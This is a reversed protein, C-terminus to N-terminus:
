KRQVLRLTFDGSKRHPQLAASASWKRFRGTGKGSLSRCRSAALVDAIDPAAVTVPNSTSAPLNRLIKQLHLRAVALHHLREL